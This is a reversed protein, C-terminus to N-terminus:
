TKHPIVGTTKAKCTYQCHGEIEVDHAHDDARIWLNKINDKLGVLIFLTLTQLGGFLAAVLIGVLWKGDLGSSTPEAGAAYAITVFSFFALLVIPSKNMHFIDGRLYQKGNKNIGSFTALVMWLFIFLKKM